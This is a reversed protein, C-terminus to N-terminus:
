GRANGRVMPGSQAVGRVSETSVGHARERAVAQANMYKCLLVDLATYMTHVYM